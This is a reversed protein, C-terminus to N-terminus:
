HYLGDFFVLPLMLEVFKISVDIFFTLGNKAVTWLLATKLCIIVMLILNLITCFIPILYLFHFLHRKVSQFSRRYAFFIRLLSALDKAISALLLILYCPKLVIVLVKGVLHFTRYLMENLVHINNFHLSFFGLLQYFNCILLGFFGYIYSYISLYVKLIDVLIELSNLTMQYQSLISFSYRICRGFFIVYTNPDILFEFDIKLVFM